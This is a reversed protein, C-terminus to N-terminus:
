LAEKCREGNSRMATNPHPPGSQRANEKPVNAVYRSPNSQAVAGENPPM